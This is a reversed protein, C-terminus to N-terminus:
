TVVAGAFIMSSIPLLELTILIDISGALVIFGFESCLEDIGKKLRQAPVDIM